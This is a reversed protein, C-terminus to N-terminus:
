PVLPDMQFAMKFSRTKPLFLFLFCGSPEEIRLFIKVLGPGVWVGMGIACDGEGM